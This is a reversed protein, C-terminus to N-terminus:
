GRSDVRRVRFPPQYSDSPPSQSDRGIRASGVGVGRMIFPLESEGAPEGAISFSIRGGIGEGEMSVEVVVRGVPVERDSQCRLIDIYVNYDFCLRNDKLYFAIGANQTGKAFLIGQEGADGRELDVTMTWEGLGLAPAVPHPIRSIPPLYHYSLEEHVGGPRRRQPATLQSSRDDLPM